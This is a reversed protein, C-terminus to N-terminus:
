KRIYIIKADKLDEVDYDTMSEYKTLQKELLDTKHKELGYSIGLAMTILAWLGLLVMITVRKVETLFDAWKEGMTRTNM